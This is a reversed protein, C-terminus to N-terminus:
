QAPRLAPGCAPFLKESVAAGRPWSERGRRISEYGTQQLLAAQFAYLYCRRQVFKGDREQPTLKRDSCVTRGFRELESLTIRSQDMGQFIAKWSSGLGYLTEPGPKVADAATRLAAADAGSFIKRSILARCADFDTVADPAGFPFCRPLDAEDALRDFAQNMGLPLSVAQLVNDSRGSAFQVSAGGTELIAHTPSNELERLAMWALRGEDPGSLIEITVPPKTPEDPANANEPASNAADGIKRLETRLAALVARQRDPAIARFGGTGLLAIGRIESALQPTLRAALGASLTRAAAEPALDALGPAGPIPTCNPEGTGPLLDDSAAPAQCRCQASDPDADGSQECQNRIPFLCLRTGSSGADIVLHLPGPIAASPDSSADRCGPGGVILLAIALCLWRSRGPRAIRPILKSSQM